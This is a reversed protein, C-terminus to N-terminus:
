TVEAQCHVQFQQNFPFAVGPATVFGGGPMQQLPQGQVSPYQAPINYMFAANYMPHFGAQSMQGMAQPFQGRFVGAMTVTAPTPIMSAMSQQFLHSLFLCLKILLDVQM